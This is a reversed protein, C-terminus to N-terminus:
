ESFVNPATLKALRKMKNALERIEWQAHKDCRENCFHLLERANMTVIINTTAANPLIYRADEKPIGLTVLEDYATDIQDMINEFISLAPITKEISEPVVVDFDAMDVYRQSQQNYSAIRHRVLQHSCARSIGSVGFTFVAHEFPSMHKNNLLKKIGEAILVPDSTWENADKKYCTRAANWIMEEPNPTCTLLAVEM